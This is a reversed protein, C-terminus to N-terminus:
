FGEGYQGQNGYNKIAKILTAQDTQVSFFVFNLALASKRYDTATIQELAKQAATWEATEHRDIRDIKCTSTIVSAKVFDKAHLPQFSQNLDIRLLQVDVDYDYACIFVNPSAPFIIIPSNFIDQYLSLQANKGSSTRITIKCKGHTISECVSAPKTEIFDGNNLQIRIDRHVLLVVASYLSVLAVLGVSAMLWKSKPIAAM